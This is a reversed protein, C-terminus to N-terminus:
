FLTVLFFCNDGNTEDDADMTWCGDDKRKADLRTTESRQEMREAKDKNQFFIMHRKEGGSWFMEPPSGDFSVLHVADAETGVYVTQRQRKRKRQGQITKLKSTDRAM